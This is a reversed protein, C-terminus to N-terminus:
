REVIVLDFISAIVQVSITIIFTLRYNRKSFVKAFMYVGFVGAVNGILTGVTNYFSQTFHPGDPICTSDALYFTDLVGGISVYLVYQLWGFLNAKMITMPICIFGSICLLTSVIVSGYLLDYTDGFLNLVTIVLVGCTMLVGYFAVFSNRKIVETNVEIIGNCCSIVLDESTESCNDILAVTNQNDSVKTPTNVEVKSHQTADMSNAQSNNNYYLPNFQDLEMLAVDGSNVNIDSISNMTNENHDIEDIMGYAKDKSEGSSKSDVDHKSAFEALLLAHDAARDARNTKEEYWNMVYFLSCFLQLGASIFIGVRPIGTDSLPGQIASAIITGVMILAWIWSILNAGPLPFRKILRSYHGESLVDVNAICFNLIFIMAGAIQAISTKSPLIGYVITCVAGLICSLLMYYRKTYGFLSIADSIIATIPKISFGMTSLGKTRQYVADSVHYNKKFMAYLSVSVLNRGIGKSLVYVM